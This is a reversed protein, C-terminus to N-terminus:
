KIREVISAEYGEDFDLMIGQDYNFDATHKNSLKVKSTAGMKYWEYESDIHGLDVVWIGEQSLRYALVKATPGLMLLVLKNEAYKKITDFIQEVKSFANNSPCIIRKISSADAFLDNGVGSRSLYGEVILVDKDLWLKKLSTFYDQVSTKDKLDIYPRSLFASGYKSATCLSSYLAENHELHSKWFNLCFENYRELDRFVDPLCILLSHNSECQVISKLQESLEDNYSQYPISRGAMIDFEGDGFRIVSAKHTLIYDLTEVNDMVQILANKM